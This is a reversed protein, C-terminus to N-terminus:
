FGFYGFEGAIKGVTDRPHVTVTKIQRTITHRGRIVVGEGSVQFKTDGVFSRPRPFYSLFDLIIQLCAEIKVHDHRGAVIRIVGPMGMFPFTKDDMFDDDLTVLTFDKSRCFQFQFQDDKTENGFDKASYVRLKKKWKKDAKLRQAMEEPFNEDFYLKIKQKSFYRKKAEMFYSRGLKRRLPRESQIIPLDKPALRQIVIKKTCGVWEGAWVM